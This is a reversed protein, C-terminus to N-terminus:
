ADAKIVLWSTASSVASKADNVVLAMLCQLWELGDHQEGLSFREGEPTARVLALLLTADAAWPLTPVDACRRLSLLLRLLELSVPTEDPSLDLSELYDLFVPLSALAQLASNAFCTNGINRIGRAAGQPSYLARHAWERMIKLACSSTTVMERCLILLFDM